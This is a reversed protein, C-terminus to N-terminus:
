LLGEGRLAGIILYASRRDRDVGTWDGKRFTTLGEEGCVFVGYTEEAEPEKELQAEEQERDWLVEEWMADSITVATMKADAINPLISVLLNNLLDVSGDSGQQMTTVPLYEAELLMGKVAGGALIVNGARVVFDTGIAYVIGDVSLQQGSGQSLGSTGSQRVSVWRARSQALLQELAGPPSLTLFTTRFHAPAGPGTLPIPVQGEALSQLLDARSHSVPDELQVFVHENMTLACMTREAHIQLGPISQLQSRYSKVSLHWKGRSVGQHNRIINQGILDLGTTPANVWRALGTIGM